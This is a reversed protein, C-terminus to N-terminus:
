VREDPTYAEGSTDLMVPPELTETANDIIDGAALLAQCAAEAMGEDVSNHEGGKGICEGDRLLRSVVAVIGSARFLLGRERELRKTLERPSPIRARPKRTRRPKSSPEDGRGATGLAALYEDKSIEGSVMQSKLAIRAKRSLRSHAALLDVARSTEGIGPRIPTVNDIAM